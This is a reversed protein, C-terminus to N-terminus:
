HIPVGIGAQVKWTRNEVDIGLADVVSMLGHDYLVDMSLVPGGSAGFTFGAGGTAAVDFGSTPVGLDQCSRALEFGLVSGAAECGIEWAFTPGAYLHMGFSRGMPVSYRLLAPVEVYDLRVATGLIDGSYPVAGRQAYGAGVRMGLDGVVPFALSAGVNFGVRSDVDVFMHDGGLNSGNVGAHLSLLSQASLSSPLAALLLVFVSVFLRKRIM